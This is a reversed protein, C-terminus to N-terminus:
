DDLQGGPLCSGCRAATLLLRYERGDGSCGPSCHKVGHAGELDSTNSDRSSRTFFACKWTRVLLQRTLIELRSMKAPPGASHEVCHVESGFPWWPTTVPAAPPPAQRVGPSEYSFVFCVFSFLSVFALIFYFCLRGQGQAFKLEPCAHTRTDPFWIVFAFM